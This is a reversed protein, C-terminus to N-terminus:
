MIISDEGGDKSGVELPRSYPPAPVSTRGSVPVTPVTSGPAPLPVM